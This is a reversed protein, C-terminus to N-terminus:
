NRRRYESWPVVNRAHSTSGGDEVSCNSRSETTELRGGAIRGGAEFADDQEVNGERRTVLGAIESQGFQLVFNYPDSNLVSRPAVERPNTFARRPTKPGSATRWRGPKVAHSDAFLLADYTTRGNPFPKYSNSERNFEDYTSVTPLVGPKSGSATLEIPPFNPLDFAIVVSSAWPVVPRAERRSHCDCVPLKSLRSKQGGSTKAGSVSRSNFSSPNSYYIPRGAGLPTKIDYSVTDSFRYGSVFGLQPGRATTPVGEGNV